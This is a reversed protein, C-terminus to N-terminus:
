QSEGIVRKVMKESLEWLNQQLTENKSAVSPDCVYCNNFYLATLGTLEHATACYVTTSAAQQLSKTFPRVLAFLFRYFWWNRSLASSVM